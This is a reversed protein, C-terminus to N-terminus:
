FSLVFALLVLALSLCALHLALLELHLALLLGLRLALLVQQLFVKCWLL